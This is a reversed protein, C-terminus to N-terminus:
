PGHVDDVGLFRAEERLFFARYGPPPDVLDGRADLALPFVRVGLDTREFYLVVVQDPHISRRKRRRSADRVEMRVRDVIQDSHTEVVLNVGREVAQVFYSGLEAQARPHLHVEPQQLLLTQGKQARAIDVLVPLVQSVGYGVDVLNAKARGVEVTVQFPDSSKEGKRAIDLASLLGSAGGFTIIRERLEEWQQDNVMSLQALVMPVHAGDPTAADVRPDYTRRAQSRIPASALMWSGDQAAELLDVVRRLLRDGDPAGADDQQRTGVGGAVRFAVHMLAQALNPYPRRLPVQREGGPSGPVSWGATVSSEEIKARFATGDDWRLDVERPAVQGHREGYTVELSTAGESKDRGKSKAFGMGVRFQRVVTGEATSRAISEYAGLDFPPENFASPDLRGAARLMALFTSKGASNEGVLLTLPRVQIQHRGAFCRVDELILTEPLVLGGLL